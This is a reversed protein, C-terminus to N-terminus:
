GALYVRYAEAELQDAFALPDGNGFSGFFERQSAHSQIVAHRRSRHNRTDLRLEAPDDRNLFQPLPHGSQWANMTVQSISRNGIADKVAHHLLLHAPHWYEGSSGHTVLLGTDALEGDLLDKLQRSLQGRTVEPSYVRYTKAVPDVHGLFRVSRIGLIEASKRLEAERFEGLISRDLNGKPGGEGRTLCVLDIPVGRDVMECILGCCFIEDDPHAIVVTAHRGEGIVNVIEALSRDRAKTKARRFPRAISRGRKRYFLPDTLRQVLRQWMM